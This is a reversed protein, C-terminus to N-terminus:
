AIAAAILYGCDKSVLKEAQVISPEYYTSEEEEERWQKVQWPRARFTTGLTLGDLGPNPDVYAIVVNKGWCDVLTPTEGEVSVSYMSSPVIVKLGWLIDPLGGEMLIDSHTYKIQDRIGIDRKMVRWVAMPVVAINAERGGTAVRIAERGIDFQQEIVSQTGAQSSFSANNWQSTGSLTVVNSSAYTATNTLLSAVRIEQDLLIKDQVRRTKSVELQLVPDQNARQRDTIRTKLAWEEAKYLDPTAGYDELNSKAGDARLSGRGDSRAVRFASGKDWVYYYDSEHAVPVVPFVQEAVMGTPHYGISLQSLPANIHVGRVSDFNPSGIAAM